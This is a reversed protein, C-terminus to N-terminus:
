RRSRAPEGASPLAAESASVAAAMAQDSVVRHTSTELRLPLRAALALGIAALLAGSWFPSGVGFRDIAFGTWVPLAVRAVGGLAQQVGLYVGREAPSAVRSLLATVAPFTLATGLPMLLMPVALPALHRPLPFTALGVTLLVLGVRCLRSEGLWTVLRGLIGLRVVVGVGGFFMVFYGITAETVGFVRALYLPFVAIMGYFAGIGVTYIWILRSASAAPHRLVERLVERSSRSGKRRAEHEATTIKTERLAFLAYVLNALCLAAAVIGPAARGFEQATVSGIVPGVVAGLSTSATLWGISKTREASTSADAIAANIVGVTGGGFGQVIRSVLLVVISDAGAFMLYGLASVGLGALLAPRRGRRDSLRGWTPASLLQAVSFAAVLMGVVTGSAGMRTAYFPLLPVIMVVGLMDVFAIVILTLM